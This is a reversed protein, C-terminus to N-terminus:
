NILLQNVMIQYDQNKPLIFSDILVLKQVPMFVQACVKNQAENIGYINYQITSGEVSVKKFKQDIVKCENSYTVKGVIKLEDSEHNHNERIVEVKDFAIPKAIPLKEVEDSLTVQGALLTSVILFAKISKM